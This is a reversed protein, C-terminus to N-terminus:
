SHHAGEQRATDHRDGLPQTQVAGPLQHFHRIRIKELSKEGKIGSLLVNYRRGLIFYALSCLVIAAASIYAGIYNTTAATVEPDSNAIHMNDIAFIVFLVAPLAGFIVQLIFLAGIKFKNPNKNKYIKM